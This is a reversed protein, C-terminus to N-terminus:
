PTLHEVKLILMCCVAYTMNKEVIVLYRFMIWFLKDQVNQESDYLLPAFHLKTTLANAWSRHATPDIMWPPGMPSYRAGALEGRYTYCLGHYTNEQRPSSAYLLVRATLRFSFLGLPALPNGWESDSHDKIMHRVGHLRLYFTNLTYNFLDKRGKKRGEYLLIPVVMIDFACIDAFYM